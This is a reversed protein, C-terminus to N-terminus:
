NTTPADNHKVKECAGSSRNFGISISDTGITLTSGDDLTAVISLQKKGLYLTRTVEGITSLKAGNDGDDEYKYTIFDVYYKEDTSNKYIKLEQGGRILANTKAENLYAVLNKTSEKAETGLVLSISLAIIGTMVSMIAIVVILEIM